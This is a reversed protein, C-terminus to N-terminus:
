AANSRRYDAIKRAANRAHDRVTTRSVGLTLAIQRASMGRSGLTWIDLEKPTLVLPAIQQDTM